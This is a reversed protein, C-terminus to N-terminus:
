DDFTHIMSKNLISVYAGACGIGFGINNGLTGVCSLSWAHGGGEEWCRRGLSALVWQAEGTVPGTGGNRAERLRITMGSKCRQVYRSPQIFM